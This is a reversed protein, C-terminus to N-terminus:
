ALQDMRTVVAEPQDEALELTLRYLHEGEDGMGRVRQEKSKVIRLPLYRENEHDFWLLQPSGLVDLIAMHEARGRLGTDLVLTRQGGLPESQVLSFATDQLSQRVEGAHVQEQHEHQVTHSWGGTTRLTEPAGLSSWFLLHQEQAHPDELYFAMTESLVTASTSGVLRVEYKTPLKDTPLLDDLALQDYGTSFIGTHKRLLSDDSYRVSWSTTTSNTGDADTYTLRAQLDLDEGSDRVYACHWALYHQEATTVKRRYGRNRWTLWSKANPLLTTLGTTFDDFPVAERRQVGAFWAMKPSTEDGWDGANTLSANERLVGLGNVFREWLRVYYRRQSTRVPYSAVTGYDPWDPTRVYPKLLTDLEFQVMGADDPSAMAEADIRDFVGSDLETELYVAMGVSYKESYAPDIAAQITDAEIVVNTSTFSALDYASGYTRATFTIVTGALELTFDKTLDYNQLCGEYFHQAALTDTGGDAFSHGDDVGSMSAVCVLEVATTGYTITVVDDAASAGGFAVFWQSLAGTGTQYNGPEVRLLLPTRVPGLYPLAIDTTFSM